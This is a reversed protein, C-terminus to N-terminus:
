KGTVRCAGPQCGCGIDVVGTIELAAAVTIGEAAQKRILLRGGGMCAARECVNGVGVTKRVFESEAFEGQIESLKEACYFRGEWGYEELLSRIAEEDRKVDISALAKVSRIDIGNEELIKGVLAKLAAQDTGRRCGIGLVVAKPVLRLCSKEMLPVPRPATSSRITVWINHACAESTCGEPIGSCPLDSFFGAKKGELLSASLAKAEERDTIALGNGAAFLDVAFLGNVDTATTIVPVAGLIDGIRLALRNAGGVHGSLLPVAFQGAEDVAVVPPDTMKDRVWPAIGRVAIGVAGVFVMARGQDFMLGCWQKLEMDRERLGETRWQPLLFREPVYAECDEGAEVFECFLRRVLEAGRATFCIMGIKM